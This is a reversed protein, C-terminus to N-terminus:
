TDQIHIRIYEPGTDKIYGPGTDKIYGPGKDKYIRFRYGKHIRIYGSGTDQSVLVAVM